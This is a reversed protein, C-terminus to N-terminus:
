ESESVPAPPAIPKDVEAWFEEPWVIESGDPQVDPLDYVKGPVVEGEIFPCSFPFDVASKRKTM